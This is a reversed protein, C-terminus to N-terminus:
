RVTYGTSDPSTSTPKTLRPRRLSLTYRRLLRFVARSTEAYLQHDAPLFIAQSCLRKAQYLPMAAGIGYKRAEYSASVVVGRGEPAGGVVVPKGMLHPHRVLEVSVFFADMDIHAIERLM